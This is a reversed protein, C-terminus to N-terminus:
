RALIAALEVVWISFTWRRVVVCAFTTFGNRCGISRTAPRDNVMVKGTVSPM